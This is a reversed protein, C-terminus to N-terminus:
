ENIYNDLIEELSNTDGQKPLGYTGAKATTTAVRGSTTTSGAPPTTSAYLGSSMSYWCYGGSPAIGSIYMTGNGYSNFVLQVVGAKQPVEAQFSSTVYFDLKGSLANTIAAQSMTSVTSAGTNQLVSAGGLEKFTSGDHSMFIKNTDTSVYFGDKDPSQSKISSESGKIFKIRGM